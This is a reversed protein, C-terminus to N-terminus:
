KGAKARALMNQLREVVTNSSVYKRTRKAEDRSAIGRAIFANDRCCGERNERVSREVFAPIAEDDYLRREVAERLAPEVGLIPVAPFKM